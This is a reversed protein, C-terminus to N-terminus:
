GVEDKVESVGGNLSADCCPCRGVMPSDPGASALRHVRMPLACRFMGRANMGDPVGYDITELLATKCGSCAVLHMSQTLGRFEHEILNGIGTKITELVSTAIEWAMSREGLMVIMKVRDEEPLWLRVLFGRREFATKLQDITM